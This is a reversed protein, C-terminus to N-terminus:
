SSVESSGVSDTAAAILRISTHLLCVLIIAPRLEEDGSEIDHIHGLTTCREGTCIIAIQLM